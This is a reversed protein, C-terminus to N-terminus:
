NNWNTLSGGGMFFLFDVEDNEKIVTQEYADRKVFSSNLQVSVLEPKTVKNQQLLEILGIQSQHFEQVKGNIIVKMKM